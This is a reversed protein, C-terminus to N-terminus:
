IRIIAKKNMRFLIDFLERSNLISESEEKYKM